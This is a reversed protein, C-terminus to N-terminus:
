WPWLLAHQQAATDGDLDYDHLCLRWLWLELATSSLM